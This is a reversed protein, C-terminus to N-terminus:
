SSAGPAHEDLRAFGDPDLDLEVCGEVIRGVREAPVYRSGKLVGARVVLGNFIDKDPDGLVAEVHGVKKETAAVDWGQEILLWSVPDAV